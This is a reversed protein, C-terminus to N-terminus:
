LEKKKKSKRKKKPKADGDESPADSSSSEKKKSRKARKKLFAAAEEVDPFEEPVDTPNFLPDRADKQVDAEIQKYVLALHEDVDEMNLKTRAQTRSRTAAGAPAARINRPPM